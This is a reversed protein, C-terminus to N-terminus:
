AAPPACAPPSLHRTLRPAGRCEPGIMPLGPSVSELYLPSLFPGAVDPPLGDQRGELAGQLAIVAQQIAPQAAESTRGDQGSTQVPLDPLHLGGHGTESAHAHLLPAVCQLLAFLLIMLRHTLHRM